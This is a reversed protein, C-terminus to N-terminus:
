LAAPGREGTRIRVVDELPSVFIKGDGLKGTDAAAGILEVVREVRDDDVAIELELKPLLEVEYEAGRYTETHGRQRGFGRVETLTIGTIGAEGLAEKVAALKFPKIVALVKKM